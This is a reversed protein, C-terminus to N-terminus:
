SKYTDYFAQQETDSIIPIGQHWNSRNRQLDMKVCIKSLITEKELGETERLKRGQLQWKWRRKALIIVGKKHVTLSFEHQKLAFWNSKDIRFRERWLWVTRSVSRTRLEYITVEKQLKSRTQFIKNRFRDSIECCLRDYMNKLILVSLVINM